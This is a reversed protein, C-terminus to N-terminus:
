RGDGRTYKMFIDELNAEQTSFNLIEFGQDEILKMLDRKDRDSCTLIIRNGGGTLTKVRGDKLLVEKVDEYNGSIDLVLKAPIELEKRLKEVSDVARLRGWTIIAVRDAVEQVNPLIHSSFFVTGGKDSYDSVVKKVLATGQPDLGSTPEDLLLIPPTGIVAQAFALRQVMGKSYEGVKRDAAGKLGVLKLKKEIEDGDANRLEVFFRLVERGTLNSYLSINEPLYGVGITAERRNKQVNLGRIKVEGSTPKILGMIAKITTTKGAGNPGLFGFVEGRKVNINLSKVATMDGYTKTLNKIEIEQSM